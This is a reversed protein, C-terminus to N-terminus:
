KGFELTMLRHPENKCADDPRKEAFFGIRSGKQLKVPMLYRVPFEAEFVTKKGAAKTRVVVNSEVTGGVFGYGAGGTFQHDPARVRFCEGPARLDYIFDDYDYGAMGDVFNQRANGFGDFTLGVSPRHRLEGDVTARFRLAGKNWVMQWEIGREKVVEVKSWDVGGTVCPVTVVREKPLLRRLMPDAAVKAGKLAAILEGRTENKVKLYFPFGSLPLKVNGQEGEGEVKMQCRNGMMDILEMGGDRMGRGEDRLVMELPVGFGRDYRSNGRWVAAVTSGRGDDFVYARCERAFRVDEVFTSNGLISLLAANMATWAIPRLGDVVNPCWCTNSFVRDAHRYYVLTERLILAAGIREGWGVDYTPIAVSSYGDKIAVRSWPYLGISPRIMPYYYSGEGTKIKIDSYGIKNLGNIFYQLDTEVDPHEPLERYTHIEIAKFHTKPEMTKMRSLFDIVHQSGWNTIMNWHGFPIFEADPTARMLGRNIALMLKAYEGDNHEILTKYHGVPETDIAWFKMHPVKRAMECTEREVWELMAPPYNTMHQVAVGEWKWPKGNLMQTWGDHWIVGGWYDRIGYKDLNAYDEATLRAGGPERTGSYALSCLGFDRLRAYLEPPNSCDARKFGFEATGQLFRRKDTGDRADIKTFRLYDKYDVDGSKLRVAFTFTGLPWQDDSGLAVDELGSEPIVVTLVKKLLQRGFFDTGIIGVKANAGSPGRVILRLNQPRKADAYGVTPQDSVIDLGFPNGAYATAKTGEEIQVDDIFMDPRCALWITCEHFDAPTHFTGELRQWRDHPPKTFLKVPPLMSPMGRIGRPSVTISRGKADGSRVFASIVYDKDGDLVVGATKVDGGRVYLSRRGSHADGNTIVNSALCWYRDGSEFSPNMLINASSKYEAVNVKSEEAFDVGGVLFPARKRRFAKGPDVIVEVPRCSNKAVVQVSPSKAGAVISRVNNTNFSLSLDVTGDANRLLVREPHQWQNSILEGGEVVLEHEDFYNKDFLYALVINPRVKNARNDVFYTMKLRGDELDTLEAHFVCHEYNTAGKQVLLACEKTCVITKRSADYASKMNTIPKWYQFEPLVRAFLSFVPRGEVSYAFISEPSLTLRKVGAAFGQSGFTPKVEVYDGKDGEALYPSGPVVYPLVAALMLEFM